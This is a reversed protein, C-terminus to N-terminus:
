LVWPYPSNCSLWSCTHLVLQHSRARLAPPQWCFAGTQEESSCTIRLFLLGQREPSNQQMISIFSYMFLGVFCLIRALALVDMYWLGRNWRLEDGRQGRKCLGEAQVTRLLSSGSLLEWRGFQLVGASVGWCMETHSSVGSQYLYYEKCSNEGDWHGQNAGWGWCLARSIVFIHLLIDQIKNWILHYRNSTIHYFPSSSFVSRSVESEM